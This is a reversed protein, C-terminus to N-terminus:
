RNQTKLLSGDLLLISKSPEVPTKWTIILNMTGLRDVGLLSLGIFFIKLCLGNSNFEYNCLLKYRLM